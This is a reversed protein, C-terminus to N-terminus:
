MRLTSLSGHPTAIPEDMQEMWSILPTSAARQARRGYSGGGMSRVRSRQKKLL